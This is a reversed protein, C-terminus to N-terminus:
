VRSARLSSLEANSLLPGVPHRVLLRLLFGVLIREGIRVLPDRGLRPLEEAGQASVIRLGDLDAQEVEAVEERLGEAPM